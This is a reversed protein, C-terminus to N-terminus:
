YLGKFKIIVKKDIVKDVEINQEYAYGYGSLEYTVGMLDLIGKVEKYSLGKFNVM